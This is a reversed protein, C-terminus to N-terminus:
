ERRSPLGSTANAEHGPLHAEINRVEREYVERQKRALQMADELSEVCYEPYSGVWLSMLAPKCGPGVIIALPKALGPADVDDEATLIADMDDGWEYTLDRFDLITSDARWAASAAKITAVIYRADPKGASGFGYSGSYAILKFESGGRAGESKSLLIRHRLKSLGDYTVEQWGAIM